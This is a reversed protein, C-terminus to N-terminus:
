GDHKDPGAVIERWVGQRRVDVIELGARRVNEETRRNIEPGFLRRTLPTLLDALWGLLRGRPRVHELLLVQGAPKVVRRVEEFGRVPDEVSCFVCTATVTDFSDDPFPLQEVDAQQLRVPIPLRAARRRARSLMGESIDIGTVEVGDPYSSLNRGTGVGVELTCGKARSLVRRRREAGGMWDMPADVIDYFRATRDYRRAVAGPGTRLAGASM